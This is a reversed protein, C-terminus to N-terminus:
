RDLPVLEIEFLKPWLKGTVFLRDGQEDYAIGNLVDVGGARDQESLLGSLDIWGVVVGGQPDIRAIRDTKWVNAYVEGHVYELENLWSLPGNADRVEVRRVESLDQPDLFHLVPTGDSMILHTGDHTLGWGETPYSFEGLPDFRQLDYIFGTNSKWTLQYLREGLIAIGEGFFRDPMELRQVVEGTELVVRRISSRGLLGTGEYLIGEHFVLGQTFAEPDHPYSQIVRYGYLPAAQATTPVPLPSVLPSSFAGTEANTPKPPLAPIAADAPPTDPTEVTPVTSTAVVPTVQAPAPTSTPAPTHTSTVSATMLPNDPAPGGCRQAVGPLLFLVIVFGVIGLLRFWLDQKRNM